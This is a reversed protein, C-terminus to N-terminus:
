KSAGFSKNMYLRVDDARIHAYTREYESLSMDLVECAILPPWNDIATQTAFTHRLDHFRAAYKVNWDSISALRKAETWDDDFRQPTLYSDQDIPSPFVWKSSKNLSRWQLLQAHMIKPIPVTRWKKNKFSWVEASWKKFDILTWPLSLVEKKRMGCYRGFLVGILTRFKCNNLIGSIEADTYVRGVAKKKTRTRIIEDVDSLKPATAIYGHRVCYNFLMTLCKGTNFFVRTPHTKLYWNEFQKLKNPNIESVTLKGWFPAIGIRWAVDYKVLTSKEKQPAREQVCDNWIDCILHNKIGLKERRDRNPNESLLDLLKKEVEKKAERLTKKTTSFKVARGKIRARYYIIESVPQLYYGEPWDKPHILNQAPNKVNM